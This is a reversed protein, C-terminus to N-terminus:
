KTVSPTVTVMGEVIRIVSNSNYLDVDYVYRGPSLNATSSSNLSLTIISSIVNISVSFPTNNKSTYWKRMMSNATYGNLNIMDGNQDIIQLNASFTTGQDIILNSKFSM